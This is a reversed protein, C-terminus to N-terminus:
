PKLKEDLFERLKEKGNMSTLFLVLDGLLSMDWVSEPVFIYRKYMKTDKYKIWM